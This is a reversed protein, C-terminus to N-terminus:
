ASARDTTAVLAEDGSILSTSTSKTPTTKTIVSQATHKKAPTIPLVALRKTSSTAPTSPHLANNDCPAVDSEGESDSSPQGGIECADAQATADWEYNAYHGALDGQNALVSDSESHHPYPEVLSELTERCWPLENQLWQQEIDALEDNLKERM